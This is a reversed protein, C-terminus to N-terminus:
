SLASPIKWTISGGQRAQQMFGCIISWRDDWGDHLIPSRPIRKRERRPTYLNGLYHGNHNSSRGSKEAVIEGEGSRHCHRHCDSLYSPNSRYEIQGRNTPEPKRAPFEVAGVIAAGIAAIIAGVIAITLNRSHQQLLDRDKQLGEVKQELLRFSTEIEGIKQMGTEIKDIKSQIQRSLMHVQVLYVRIDALTEPTDDSSTTV